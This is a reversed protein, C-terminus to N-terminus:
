VALLLPHAKEARREALTRYVTLVNELPTDPQIQHCPAIIFGGDKGVEDILHNIEEEIESRPARQLWGQVDVAGHLVIQGHYERKLEYPNMGEAQPQITQLADMGLGIFRPILERSSGCCHHTVKAGCGHVMDFFEKKKAAFLRNFSEPSLMLGRQSGFDDGCLVLDLKGRAAKLTREIFELYFRHRRELIYLFVPDELAIDVLTQEVGRGFAAGNIFDQVAFSGTLLAKGPYRDCIVSVAGYDYWDPNPWNFKEAEEVTKWEAYPSNVAEAYDGYENAMPKKRIGWINMFSGDQFVPLEPGIYPPDIFRIDTGLCERLENDDRIKFHKLLAGHIEPTAYYDCPTADPQTFAFTAKVRERSQMSWEEM